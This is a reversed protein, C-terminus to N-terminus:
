DNPRKSVVEGPSDFGVGPESHIKSADIAAWALFFWMLRSDYYDGSFLSTILLFAGACMALLVTTPLPRYKRAAVVLGVIAAILLILGVTGSEAATAMVLNHAYSFATGDQLAFYGDLGVGILWDEAYLQWSQELLVDRSSVYGEILTQMIFRENVFRGLAGATIQQVIAFGFGLLVAIGITKLAGLRRAIPVLAVILLVGAALLGGRSGSLAAGVAFAPVALLPWSRKKSIALSLAAIAAIIMIRVFVNPGGGFASFRGQDDPGALVAGVFYVIGTIYWWNWLSENVAVPLWGLLTAGLAVFAVLFMLSELNDFLRAGSPAWFSSLALWGAWAGFIGIGAVVPRKPLVQFSGAYWISGIMLLAALLFWRLDLSPLQSSLRDLTFRGALLAIFVGFLVVRGFKFQFGVRLSENLAGRQLDQLPAKKAMGVSWSRFEM